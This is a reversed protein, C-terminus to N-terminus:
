DKLLQVLQPRLLAALAETVSTGTFDHEVRGGAMKVRFGTGMQADTVVTVDKQLALSTKLANAIEPAVVVEVTGDKMYTTIATTVLKEILPASSLSEDVAGGLTRELLATIDQGLKLLVDRAAQRITAEAGQAAREAEAKANALLKDAEIKATAVMAAAEAKANALLTDAEVKAADVGESRIKN